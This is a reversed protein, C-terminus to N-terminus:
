RTVREDTWSASLRRLNDSTIEVVVAIKVKGNGVSELTPNGDQQSVTVSRKLRRLM